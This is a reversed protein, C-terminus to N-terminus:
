ENFLACTFMCDYISKFTDANPVSRVSTSSPVHGAIRIFGPTQVQREDADTGEALIEVLGVPVSDVRIDRDETRGEVAAGLPAGAGAESRARDTLGGGQEGEAMAAGIVVLVVDGIQRTARDGDDIDAICIDHVGVRHLAVGINLEANALDQFGARQRYHQAAVM